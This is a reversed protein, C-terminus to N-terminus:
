RQACWGVLAEVTAAALFALALPIGFDALRAADNVYVYALAGQAVVFSCIVCAAALVTGRGPKASPSPRRAALALALALPVTALVGCAVGAITALQPTM